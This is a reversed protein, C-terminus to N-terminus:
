NSPATTSRNTTPPVLRDFNAGNGALRDMRFEVIEDIRKTDKDYADEEADLADKAMDLRRRREDLSAKVLQTVTDRLQRKLDQNDPDAQLQQAIGWANDELKGQELATEYVGPTDTQAKMLARYRNAIRLKLAAVVPADEGRNDRVREFMKWRNPFNEQSFKSIQEWEDDTPPDTRQLEALPREGNNGFRGGPGGRFGDLLRGMMGGARRPRNPAPANGNAPPANDAAPASDSANDPQTTPGDALVLGAALMLALPIMQCRM